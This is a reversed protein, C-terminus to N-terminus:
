RRRRLWSVRKDIDEGAQFRSALSAKDSRSTIPLGGPLDLGGPSSLPQMAQPQGRWRPSGSLLLLGPKAVRNIKTRAKGTGGCCPCFPNRRARLVGLAAPVDDANVARAASTEGRRAPTQLGQAIRSWEDVAPPLSPDFRPPIARAMPNEDAEIVEPHVFLVPDRLNGLLAVARRLVDRQFAVDGPLGFPRGLPFECHLTRPPAM